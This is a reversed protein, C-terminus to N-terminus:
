KKLEVVVQLGGGPLNQAYVSGGQAEILQRAIALGLGTGGTARSRSKDKRWFREFIFPLDEAPVGKGNDSVTIRVGSSTENATVRVNGGDPVYRLANGILNSIVQELRQPDILASCDGSKESFSLSINKEKAEASFMEVVREIVRGVDVNQRDFLLQRTEALTLLRLDDVLRQLLYTQELAMSVQSGNESYIGDVIGELRGRIVSLPTRLEHAIDALMDRRERDSRELSSAMENFSESLSQLDQPGKKPIRTNLKGGAVARAAYIVDALPNVFRRMLLIAVVVLFMALVFSIISIPLLIARAIGLRATFSYATLVVYGVLEGNVSLDLVVDNEQFDYHSGLTSVTDARRDLVIRQDKDLLLVNLNRLGEASDFVREAGNWNGNALYYGELASAFPFPIPTSSSTLFYGVALTFFLFSLFLVIVFARLLLFLLRRRIDSVSSQM